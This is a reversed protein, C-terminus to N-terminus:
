ALGAAPEDGGGRAAITSDSALCYGARTTRQGSGGGSNRGPSCRLPPHPTHRQCFCHCLAEARCLPTLTGPPALRASAPPPGLCFKLRALAPPPGLGASAPAGGGDAAMQRCHRHLRLPPPPLSVLPPSPMAPVRCHPAMERAAEGGGRQHATERTIRDGYPPLSPCRLFSRRRHRCSRFM